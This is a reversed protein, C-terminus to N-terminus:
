FFLRRPLVSGYPTVTMLARRAFTQSSPRLQRQDNGMFVRFNSCVAVYCRNLEHHLM